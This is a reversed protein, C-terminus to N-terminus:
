KFNYNFQPYVFKFADIHITVVENRVKPMYGLKTGALILISENFPNDELELWETIQDISVWNSKNNKVEELNKEKINM